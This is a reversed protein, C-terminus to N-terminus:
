RATAARTPRTIEALRTVLLDLALTEELRGTKVAHDSAEVERLAAEAAQRSTSRAQRMLKGLAYRNKVGTAEGVAAEDARGELLETARVLHRLQRAIMAQIHQATESGEALMRRILLLAPAARGEVVADVIGFISEERAQPTLLRVDEVTVARGSAYRGLKEVETSLAWLNAGVLEVLEEVAQPEIEVDRERARERLWSAVENGDRGYSRLERFERVDADDIARLARAFASRNVATAQERKPVPELLVLHNTPPLQPIFDLLPQWDRVVAQGGGLSALLGEVVVVRAQALFPVTAAHQILEQPRLGRAPLSTTNTELMGDSDLPALLARYAERMRFDDPGLYLHLM